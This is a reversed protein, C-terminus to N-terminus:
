VSLYQRVLAVAAVTTSDSIKKSLVAKDFETLPLPLVKVPSKEDAHRKGVILKQALYVHCQWQMYKFSPHLTGIYTLEEARYGVDEQLERDATVEPLENDEVNGTPLTYGDLQYAISKEKILLLENKNTLAVIIVADNQMAVYDEGEIDKRIEMRRQNQVSNM